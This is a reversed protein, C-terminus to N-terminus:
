KTKGEPLAQQEEAGGNVKKRLHMTYDFLMNFATIALGIGLGFITNGLLNNKFNYGTNNDM